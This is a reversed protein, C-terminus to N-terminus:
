KILSALRKVNYATVLFMCENNVNDIGRVHFQRFGLTEKVNGFVPEVTQKCLRYLNRASKDQM